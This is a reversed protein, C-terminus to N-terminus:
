VFLLYAVADGLSIMYQGPVKGMCSLQSCVSIAFLLSSSADCMLVKTCLNQYEGTEISTDAYVFPWKVMVLAVVASSGRLQM